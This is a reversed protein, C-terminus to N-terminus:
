RNLAAHNLALTRIEPYLYILRDPPADPTGADQLLERVSEIQGLDPHLLSLAAWTTEDQLEKFRHPWQRAMQRAAELAGRSRAYLEPEPIRTDAGQRELEGLWQRITRHIAAGQELHTWESMSLSLPVVSESPSRLTALQGLPNIYSWNQLRGLQSAVRADGVVHRLLGLVRRDVLRLYTAKTYADTKVRLMAALHAALQDAHMSSQLWGAVHHPSGGDGDLGRELRLTREEHAMALTVELLPDNSGKLALLYPHQHLPLTVSPHLKIQIVDRNWGAARNVDAEPLPEGLMPDILVFIPYASDFVATLNQPNAVQKQSISQQM